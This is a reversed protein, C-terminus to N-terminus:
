FFVWSRHPESSKVLMARPQMRPSSPPTEGENIVTAPSQLPLCQERKLTPQPLIRQNPIAALPPPPTNRQSLLPTSHKRHPQPPSEGKNVIDSLPPPPSSHKKPPPPPPSSSSRKRRESEPFLEQRHKNRVHRFMVDKRSFTDKCFLCQVSNSKVKPSVTQTPSMRNLLRQYKDYPILVSKAAAM